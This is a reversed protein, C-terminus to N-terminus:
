LKCFNSKMESNCGETREVRSLGGIRDSTLRFGGGANGGRMSKRKKSSKRSKCRKSVRRSKSRKSVRRSKSRVRQSKTRVKKSKTRRVTKRSM